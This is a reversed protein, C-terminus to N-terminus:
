RHERVPHQKAWEAAWLSLGLACVLIACGAVPLVTLGLWQILVGGSGAGIAQGAYMASTNLAISAPALVPALAVRRAQQSSNSAFVGLGWPVIALLMVAFGASLSVLGMGLAISGLAWAMARPPGIRDIWRSVAANGAFGCLGYLLLM